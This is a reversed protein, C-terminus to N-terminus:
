EGGKVFEVLMYDNQLEKLVVMTSNKAHARIVADNNKSITSLCRFGMRWAIQYMITNMENGIGKGRYPKDILRGVFCKRNAFFRLFFYGVLRDKDFAGMMLFARNHFQKELSISDFEHPSFYTLDSDEQLYIMKWLDKVDSVHLRKYSFPSSGLEQFVSPLVKEMAPRYLLSFIIGNGWEIM